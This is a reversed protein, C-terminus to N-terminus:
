MIKVAKNIINSIGIRQNASAMLQYQWKLTLFFFPLPSFSFSLFVCFSTCASVGSLLTSANQRKTGESATSYILLREGLTGVKAVGV